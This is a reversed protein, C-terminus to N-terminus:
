MQSHAHGEYIVALELFWCMLWFIIVTQFLLLLAVTIADSM